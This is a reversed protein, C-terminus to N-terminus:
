AGARERLSSLEAPVDELNRTHLCAGFRRRTEVDMRIRPGLNDVLTRMLRGGTRDWDVMVIVPPPCGALDEMVEHLSRGQHLAVHRGGIGLWELASVDRLGEVVVTGYEAAERLSEVLSELRRLREEDRRM